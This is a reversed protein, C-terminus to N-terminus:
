EGEWYKGLPTGWDNWDPHGPYLYDRYKPFRITEDPLNHSHVFEMSIWGVVLGLLYCGFYWMM